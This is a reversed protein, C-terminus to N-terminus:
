VPTIELVYFALPELMFGVGTGTVEDGRLTFSLVQEPFVERFRYLSDHRHGLKECWAHDPIRVSTRFARHRDFNVVFLLQQGATYRLYSYIRSRDYGTDQRDINAYQLDYFEGSCVAESSLVFGNLKGYFDRLERQGASMGAGDYRGGNVWGQLEPISWYDFLTTRGDDGQFGEAGEARVGLEQGSYYMVPGGHLTASLLMAPLALFPDGAFFRSAIRQEDHNELFRLMRSSFDGSEEQWVRTIDEVTGGGCILRRMADYLGVKDYLYDFRGEFLYTRYAAPNYIEAIFVLDPNLERVRPIVWGWFGVPVMEAMDCRFGDVGKGAWFRLVELMKWWTSPVPDFCTKGRNMVDVGYNLKVTEYWDHLSPDARFVDNGTARAPSEEYDEDCRYLAGAGEPVVFEQGPLYYFNNDPAFFLGPDDEQGFDTVGDPKADSGYQRALHNPIFDIIVRLGAAHTRAVLAGFEAMRSGAERALDPDVDYYDKVAYPSGARGKVLLSNDRRIGYASYDTVTAHEIVGTFWLHTAGFERLSVLASETIDDFKGAGNEALTGCFTNTTNLNGFLRVILQYLIIKHSNKQPGPVLM